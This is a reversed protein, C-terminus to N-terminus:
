GGGNSVDFRRMRCLMSKPWRQHFTLKRPPPRDLAAVCKHCPSDVGAVAPLTTFVDVFTQIGNMETGPKIHGLWRILMPM